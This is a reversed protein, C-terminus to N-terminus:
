AFPQWFIDADEFKHSLYSRMGEDPSYTQSIKEVLEQIMHPPVDVLSREPFRRMVDLFRCYLTQSKSPYKEANFTMFGGFYNYLVRILLPQDKIYGRRHSTRELIDVAIYMLTNTSQDWCSWACYPLDDISCNAHRMLLNLLCSMAEERPLDQLCPRIVVDLLSDDMLTVSAALLTRQDLIYGAERRICAKERDSWSHYCQLSSDGNSDPTDFYRRLPTPLASQFPRSLSWLLLCFHKSIQVSSFLALAETSKYPCDCCISPIIITALWFLTWIGTLVTVIAAVTTEVTWLLVILGAFFLVLSMQLLLPLLSMLIDVRWRKLGDFRFQRIRTNERVEDSGQALYEQFWKLVLIAISATGLSCILSSFWLVNVAIASPAAQFKSSPFTQAINDSSYSSQNLGSSDNGLRASIQLLIENTQQNPDAQLLPFTVM